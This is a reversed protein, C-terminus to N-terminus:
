GPLTQGMAVCLRRGRLRSATSAIAPSPPIVETRSRPCAGFRERRRIFAAGGPRM